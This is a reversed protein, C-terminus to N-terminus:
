MRVRPKAAPGRAVASEAATLAEAVARHGAARAAAAPTKGQEDAIAPDAGAGLLM